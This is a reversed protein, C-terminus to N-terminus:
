QLSGTFTFEPHEISKFQGLLEGTNPNVFYDLVFRDVNLRQTTLPAMDAIILAANGSPAGATFKYIGDVTKTYTYPFPATFRNTGQYIDATATMSQISNNFAFAVQDLRLRYPGALMSAQAAARRAVFDASWGPYSTANPVVIASYNIGILSHLPLIPTASPLVDFRAGSVTAFLVQKQADYTFGTILKDKYVLPKQLVLGTLTFAFPSSSTFTGKDDWSISAIKANVNFTTQMRIGDGLTLYLNEASEMFQLTNLIAPLLDGKTYATQEAQTAKILQMKSGLFTGDLKLTDGSQTDFDFQFDSYYGYAPVGGFVSNDPDAIIHMYNYTDFLLSPVQSAKLRYSSEALETTTEPALDGIMQVRNDKDFTLYFSFGSGGATYLYAKWGYPSAILEDQYKNLAELIREEPKKNDILQDEDKKCGSFLALSFLICILYHKM